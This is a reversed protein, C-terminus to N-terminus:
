SNLRNLYVELEAKNNVTTFKGERIEKQARNYLEQDRTLARVSGANAFYTAMLMRIFDQVSIGIRRAEEKANGLIGAPLNVKITASSM